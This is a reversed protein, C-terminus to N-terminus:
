DRMDVGGLRSSLRNAMLRSSSVATAEGDSGDSWRKGTSQGTNRATVAVIAHLSFAVRTDVEVIEMQLRTKLPQLARNTVLSFRM